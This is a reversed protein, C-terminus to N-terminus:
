AAELVRQTTAHFDIWGHCLMGDKLQLRRFLQFRELCEEADIWKEAPLELGFPGSMHGNFKVEAFQGERPPNLPRVMNHLAQNVIQFRDYGAARLYCVTEVSMAEVSVFAPRRPDTALQETFLDDVGEMDCKIYRPVGHRDFLGALTTTQVRIEQSDHGGKEAWGRKVSSWDDKVPNVHFAIEDGETSWFARNEIVLRGDAHESAFRGGIKACMEPNAELAVVSFGKRLYFDTDLGWHMGLDFILDNRITANTAPTTM